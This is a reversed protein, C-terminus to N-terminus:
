PMVGYRQMREAKREARRVITETPHEYKEDRVAEAGGARAMLLEWSPFGERQAIRALAASQKLGDRQKLEKADQKLELVRAPTIPPLDAIRASM